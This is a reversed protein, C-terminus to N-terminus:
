VYLPALFFFITKTTKILQRRCEALWTFRRSVLSGQESEWDCFVIIVEAYANELFEDELINDPYGVRAKLSRAQKSLLDCHFWFCFCILYFLSISRNVFLDSNDSGIFWVNFSRPLWRSKVWLRSVKKKKRMGNQIYSEFVTVDTCSLLSVKEIAAAKSDPGLWEAQRLIDLFAIRINGM